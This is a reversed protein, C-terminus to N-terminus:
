MLLNLLQHLRRLLKCGLELSTACLPNVLHTDYRAGHEGPGGRSANVARHHQIIQM